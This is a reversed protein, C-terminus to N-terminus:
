GLANRKELKQTWKKRSPLWANAPPIRRNTALNETKSNRASKEILTEIRSLIKRAV